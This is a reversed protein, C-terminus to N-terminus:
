QKFAFGPKVNDCLKRVSSIVMKVDITHPRDKRESDVSGENGDQNITSLLPRSISFSANLCAKLEMLPSVACTPFFSGSFQSKANERFPRVLLCSWRMEMTELFEYSYDVPLHTQVSVLARFLPYVRLVRDDHRRLHPGETRLRLM